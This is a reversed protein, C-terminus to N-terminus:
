QTTKWPPLNETSTALQSNDVIPININLGAPLTDTIALNPNAQIITDMLSVSGYMAYSINDWRDGELTTYDTYSGTTVVAM